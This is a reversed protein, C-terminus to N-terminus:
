LAVPERLWNILEKMSVFRVEPISLAYNIFDVLADRRDKVTARENHGYTDSYVSTHAGFIMPARNGKMRQDLSYILSSVFDGKNMCYGEEYWMNWDLGTVRDKNCYDLRLEPPIMVAYAPMEWLGPFKGVKRDNGPTDNDLTYPWYFNKGGDGTTDFAHSVSCDYLLGKSILAYFLNSNYEIYPARFGLTNIGLENDLAEECKQIEREWQEVTYRTGHLHSYTHNGIEHGCEVARRWQEVAVPLVRHYGDLFCVYFSAHVRTGDYTGANGRGVPNIKENLLNLVWSMGNADQNDDFGLVVFQPVQSVLLGKPPNVSAEYNM